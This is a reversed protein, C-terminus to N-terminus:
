RELIMPLVLREQIYRGILDYGGWPDEDSSWLYFQKKIELSFQVVNNSHLTRIAYNHEDRDRLLLNAYAWCYLERTFDVPKEIVCRLAEAM